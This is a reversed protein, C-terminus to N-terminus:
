ASRGTRVASPAFGRSAVLLVRETLPGSGLSARDGSAAAALYRARAVAVIRRSAAPTADLIMEIDAPAFREVSSAVLAARETASLGSLCALLPADVGLPRLAQLGPAAENRVSGRRLSQLVRRRLWAAAREPHRLEHVRQTGAALAQGTAAAARHRDGLAVLLAFGNLRTAHVDRFATRLLEDDPPTM